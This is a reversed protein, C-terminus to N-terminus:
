ISDLFEPHVGIELMTNDLAISYHSDSGALHTYNCVVMGTMGDVSEGMEPLWYGKSKMWKSAGQKIKVFQGVHM